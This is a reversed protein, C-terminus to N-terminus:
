ILSDMIPDIEIDLGSDELASRLFAEKCLTQADELGIGRSWLYWLDDQHLSGVASGHKCSVKKTHVELLPLNEVRVLSGFVLQKTYQAADAYDAKQNIVIVGKCFAKAHGSVIGRTTLRSVTHPAAHLSSASLSYDQQNDLVHLTTIFAEAYPEQLFNELDLNLNMEKNKKHVMFLAHLTAKNKLFFRAHIRSKEKSLAQQQWFFKVQAHANIEVDIELLKDIEIGTCIFLIDTYADCIISLKSGGDLALEKLRAALYLTQKKGTDIIHMKQTSSNDM